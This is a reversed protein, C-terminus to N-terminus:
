DDDGFDNIAGSAWSDGGDDGWDDDEIDGVGEEHYCEGDLHPHRHAVEDATADRIERVVVDISLTDGALPHNGDITVQGDEISVVQFIQDDWDVDEGEDGGYADEEDVESLRIEMGIELQEAGEIDDVAVTLMLSEDHMGYGQDPPVTVSFADGAERGEMAAELGPILQGYGHLYVSPGQDDSSECTSGDERRVAYDFTVVKDKTIQM